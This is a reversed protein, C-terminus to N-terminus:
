SESNNREQGRPARILQNITQQITTKISIQEQEAYWDQGYKNPATWVKDMGSKLNEPM